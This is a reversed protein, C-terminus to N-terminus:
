PAERESGGRPVLLADRLEQLTRGLVPHRLHPAVECAPELVFARLHARPHPIVLGPTDVIADGHLVLDLDLTRPANLGDRRRGHRREVDFLLALLEGPALSTELLAAGNLFSPSGPPADVPETRHFRSRAVVRVGPSADLADLAAVLTQERAGLNAGLAVLAQTM